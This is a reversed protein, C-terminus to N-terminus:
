FSVGTQIQPTFSVGADDPRGLVFFPLDLEVFWKLGEGISFGKNIIPILGFNFPVDEGVQVGARVGASFCGFNYVVGPDVLFTTTVRDPAGDEGFLWKSYAIFEFDISWRENLKVIIGPALGVNIFDGGIVTTGDDTIDVIPIALALHGGLRPWGEEKGPGGKGHGHHHGHEEHGETHSLLRLDGVDALAGLPLLAAVVLSLARGPAGRNRCLWSFSM